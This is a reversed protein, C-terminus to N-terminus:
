YVTLLSNNPINNKSMVAPGKVAINGHQSWPAYVRESM